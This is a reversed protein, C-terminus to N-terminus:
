QFVVGVDVGVDAGVAPAQWVSLDDLTITWRNLNGLVSAKPAVFGWAGLPQRYDLRLGLEVAVGDPSRPEDVGRGSVRVAGVKALACASARAYTGCGAFSALMLQQAFGGGDDREGVSRTSLEGGLELTVHSWAVGGFVRVLPVVTPAVGLGAAVGAGVFPLLKASNSPRAAGEAPAPALSSSANSPPPKAATPSAADGAAPPLGASTETETALLHIQVALALGMTRVLEACDRQGAPFSQEGSAHGTSGLWQFRGEIGSATPIVIVLVRESADERFPEYGLRHAVVSRFDGDSPCTAPATYELAVTFPQAETPAEAQAPAAICALCVLLRLRATPV